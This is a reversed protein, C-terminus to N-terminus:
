AGPWRKTLVFFRFLGANEPPVWPGESANRAVRFGAIPQPMVRKEDHGVRGNRIKSCTYGIRGRFSMGPLVPARPPFGKAVLSVSHSAHGERFVSQM